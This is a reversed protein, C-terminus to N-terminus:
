SQFSLGKYDKNHKPKSTWEAKKCLQFERSPKAMQVPDLIMNFLTRLTQVDKM